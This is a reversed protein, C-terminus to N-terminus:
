PATELRSLLENYRTRMDTQMGSCFRAQGFDTLLADFLGRRRGIEYMLVTTSIDGILEMRQEVTQKQAMRGLRPAITSNGAMMAIKFSVDAAIQNLDRNTLTDDACILNFAMVQSADELLRVADADGANKIYEIHEAALTRSTQARRLMHQMSKLIQEQEASTPTNKDLGSQPQAEPSAEQTQAHASFIFVTSVALILLKSCHFIPKM